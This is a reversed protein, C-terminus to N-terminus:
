SYWSETQPVETADAACILGVTPSNLSQPTTSDPESFLRTTGTLYTPPPTIAHIESDVGNTRQRQAQLRPNSASQCSLSAKLKNQLRYKQLKSQVHKQTLDPYFPSMFRLIRVPTPVEGIISNYARVFLDNMEPTWVIRSSAKCTRENRKSSVEIGKCPADSSESYCKESVGNMAKSKNVPTSSLISTSAIVTNSELDSAYTYTPSSSTMTGGRGYYHLHRTNGEVAGEVHASQHGEGSVRLEAKFPMLELYRFSVSPIIGKNASQSSRKLSKCVSLFNKQFVSRSIFFCDKPLLKRLEESYLSNSMPTAHETLGVSQDDITADPEDILRREM